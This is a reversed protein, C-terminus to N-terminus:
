VSPKVKEMDDMVSFFEKVNESGNVLADKITGQYEAKGEALYIIRDAIRVISSVEHTVMVITMGLQQKLNIILKDLSALSVPDLGAGPEDFFVVPPDMVIARALAARKLMGGSLQSPYLHQAHTLNVLGLKMRVIDDIMSNRLRTHQKLPLAVNEGVTLSNLLAGNQYFVGMKLYLQLQQEEDLNAIDYGLVQISGMEVPYLGLIHRLLTSKGCGSSGLIVTVEGKFVDFTVDSLVQNDDFSVGFNKIEIIKEKTM